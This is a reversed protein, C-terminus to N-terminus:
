SAAAMTVGNRECWRALTALADSSNAAPHANAGLMAEWLTQKTLPRRATDVAVLARKVATPEFRDELAATVVGRIAHFNEPPSHGTTERVHDVYARAIAVGVATVPEGSITEPASSTSASTETPPEEQQNKKTTSRPVEESAQSVSAQFVSAQNVSAQNESAQNESAQSDTTPASAREYVHIEHSWRGGSSQVRRRKLYGGAELEDMATRIADRGEKGEAAIRAASIRYGDAHSLMWVLLGRARFSLRKDRLAENAVSTYNSARHTVLRGSTMEAVEDRHITVACGEGFQM